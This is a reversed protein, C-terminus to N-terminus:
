NAEAKYAASYEADTLRRGLREEAEDEALSCSWAYDRSHRARRLSDALDELISSEQREM